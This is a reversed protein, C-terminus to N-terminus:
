LGDAGECRAGDYIIWGDEGLSQADVHASLRNGWYRKESSSLASDANPFRKGRQYETFAIGPYLEAISTWTPLLLYSYM